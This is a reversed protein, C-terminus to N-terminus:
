DGFFVSKHTVSIVNGEKELMYEGELDHRKVFQKIAKWLQARDDKDEISFSFEKEKNMFYDIFIPKWNKNM